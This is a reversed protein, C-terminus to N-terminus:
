TDTDVALMAADSVRRDDLDKFRTGVAHWFRMGEKGTAPRIKLV